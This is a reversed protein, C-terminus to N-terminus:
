GQTTPCPTVNTYTQGREHLFMSRWLLAAGFPTLGRRVEHDELTEDQEELKKWNQHFRRFLEQPTQFALLHLLLHIHLSGRMQPEIAGFAAFVDGFLTAGANSAIGDEHLDEPTCSCGLCQEFFSHVHAHFARVAAVPDQAVLRHMQDSRM